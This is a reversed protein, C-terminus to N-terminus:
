KRNEENQKEAPDDKNISVDFGMSLLGIVHLLAFVGIVCVTIFGIVELISNM